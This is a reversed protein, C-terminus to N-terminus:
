LWSVIPRWSCHWEKAMYKTMVKKLCLLSNRAFFSLSIFIWLLFCRLKCYQESTSCMTVINNNSNSQNSPINNTSQWVEKYWISQQQHLSWIVTPRISHLVYLKQLIDLNLNLVDMLFNPIVHFLNILSPKMVIPFDFCM